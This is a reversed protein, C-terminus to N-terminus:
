YLRQGPCKREYDKHHEIAKALILPHVGPGVYAARAKTALMYEPVFCYQGGKRSKLARGRTFAAASDLSAEWAALIDFNRRGYETLPMPEGPRVQEWAYRDALVENVVRGYRWLTDQPGVMGSARFMDYNDVFHGIEHHVIFAYIEHNELKGWDCQRHLAAAKFRAVNIRSAISLWSTEQYKTEPDTVDDITLLAWLCQQGWANDLKKFTSVNLPRGAICKTLEAFERYEARTLQLTVDKRSM